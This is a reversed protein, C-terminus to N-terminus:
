KNTQGPGLLPLTIQGGSAALLQQPALAALGFAFLAVIAPTTESKSQSMTPNVAAIGPPGEKRRRRVSGIRAALWAAAFLAMYVGFALALAGLGLSVGAAWPAGRMAQAGIFSVVALVATIALILRLSFQPILPRNIENM